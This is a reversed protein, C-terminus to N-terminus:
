SVIVKTFSLSLSTVASRLYRGTAWQGRMYVRSALFHRLRDGMSFQAMSNRASDFTGTERAAFRCFHQFRSVTWGLALVSFAHAARPVVAVM